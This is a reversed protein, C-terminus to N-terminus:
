LFFISNHFIIMFSNSDRFQILNKSVLAVTIFPISNQSALWSALQAFEFCLWNELWDFCWEEPLLQKEM